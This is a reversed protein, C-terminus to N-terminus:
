RDLTDWVTKLKAIIEDITHPEVTEHHEPNNIPHEHWGLRNDRDLGWVRENNIILAFSQIRLVMNYFVSLLSRKKLFVTVKLSTRKRTINWHEVFELMSLKTILTAEFENIDM